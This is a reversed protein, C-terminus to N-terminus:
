WMATQAKRLVFEEEISLVGGLNKYAQLYEAFLRSIM